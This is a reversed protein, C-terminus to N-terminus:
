RKESKRRIGMGVGGGANRRKAMGKGLKGMLENTSHQTCEGLGRGSQEGDGLPGTKNLHPM